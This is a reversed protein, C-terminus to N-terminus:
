RDAGGRALLAAGYAAETQEAPRLATGLLRGRIITWQPNSAGGGVSRVSEPWPAGLARLRRYGDREIRAIGELLGHLFRADDRPRPTLKPRRDPDAVPFREGIGDLPDYELCSRRTPDIRRSLAALQRDDFFRRLVAGGTNSAGGALWLRGLRHSYAGHAPSFVPESSILKIALTSGLSTVAEGPCRAGTALTAAISDTTGAVVAASAPLGYRATAAAGVPGIPEGPDIVAPLRARDVGLGELWDPWRDAVPDFGTKLANNTDTVDFTGTLQGVVWDAQHLLRWDGDLPRSQLWLLKALGGTAGHAGSDTPAAGAIRRAEDTARADAYMLAPTLARGAADALLVSGSTADVAVRRVDALPHHARLDAFARELATAWTAPDQERCPGEGRPPPLPARGWGRIAAGEDILCLRVGSTGVDIGLFM